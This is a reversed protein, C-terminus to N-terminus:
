FHSVLSIKCIIGQDTFNSDNESIKVFFNHELVASASPRQSPDLSLLSCILQFVDAPDKVDKLHQVNLRIPEKKKIRPVRNEESDGYPHRGRSLTYGFLLGLAFQDMAATFTFKEHTESPLWSKSFSLEFISKGEGRIYVGFNGLKM